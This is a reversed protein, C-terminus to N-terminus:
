RDRACRFGVTRSQYGRSDYSRYAARLHARQSPIGPTWFSTWCGGKETREEPNEVYCIGAAICAAYDAATVETRDIWFSPVAVPSQPKEDDGGVPDSDPAGFLFTGGPVLVMGGTDGRCEGCHIRRVAGCSSDEVWLNGCTTHHEICLARVDRCPRGSTQLPTTLDASRPKSASAHWEGCAYTAPGMSPARPAVVVRPAPNDCIARPLVLRSGAVFWGLNPASVLPVFCHEATCFGLSNPAYRVALNGDFAVAPDIAADARPAPAAADVSADAIAGADASLAVGADLSAGADADPTPVPRVLDSARLVCRDNEVRPIADFAGAFAALVDLCAADKAAPNTTGFVAEPTYEPLTRWDVYTSACSGLVCASGPDCDSRPDDRRTRVVHDYCLGSIALELLKAGSPPMELVAERLVRPVGDRYAQARVTVPGGADARGVLAITAPLSVSGRVAGATVTWTLSTRNDVRGEYVVVLRLEDFDKGPVLDTTLAVILQGPAPIVQAPPAPDASCGQASVAASGLALAALSLGRFRNPRLM